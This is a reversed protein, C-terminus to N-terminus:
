GLEESSTPRLTSSLNTSSQKKRIRKPKHRQPSLNPVQQSLTEQLFSAAFTNTTQIMKIMLTRTTFNFGESDQVTDDQIQSFQYQSIKKIARPLCCHERSHRHFCYLCRYEGVYIEEALDLISYQRM